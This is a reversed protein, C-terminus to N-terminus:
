FYKEGVDGLKGHLLFDTDIQAEEPAPRVQGDRKAPSDAKSKPILEGKPKPRM